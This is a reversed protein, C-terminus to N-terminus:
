DSDAQGSFEGRGGGEFDCGLGPSGDLDSQRDFIGTLSHQGTVPRRNRSGDVPTVPPGNAIWGPPLTPMGIVKLGVTEPLAGETASAM